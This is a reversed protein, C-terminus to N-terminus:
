SEEKIEALCKEAEDKAKEAYKKLEKKMIYLAIDRVCQGLKYSGSYTIDASGEHEVMSLGNGIWRMMDDDLERERSDCRGYEEYVKIPLNEASIHISWKYKEFKEIMDKLETFKKLNSM